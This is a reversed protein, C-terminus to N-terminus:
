RYKGSLWTRLVVDLCKKFLELSLSEVLEKTLWELAQGSRRLLIKEQHGVWIEVPAM